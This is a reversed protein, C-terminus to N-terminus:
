GSGGGERLHEEFSFVDIKTKYWFVFIFWGVNHLARNEDFNTPLSVAYFSFLKELIKAGTGHVHMAVLLPAGIFEIQSSCVKM